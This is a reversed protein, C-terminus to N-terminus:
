RLHYIIWHYCYGEKIFKYYSSTDSTNTFVLSVDDSYSSLFKNFYINKRGYSTVITKLSICWGIVNPVIKPITQLMKYRTDDPSIQYIYKGNRCKVMGNYELIRHVIETPLQEM